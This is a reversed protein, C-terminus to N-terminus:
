LYLALLLRMQVDNLLDTIGVHRGHSISLLRCYLRLYCVLMRDQSQEPLFGDTQVALQVSTGIKIPSDRKQPVHGTKRCPFFPVGSLTM